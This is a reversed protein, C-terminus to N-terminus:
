GIVTQVTRRVQITVQWIGILFVVFEGDMEATMRQNYIPSM